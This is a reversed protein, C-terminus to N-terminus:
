ASLVQPRDYHGLPDVHILIEAGPFASAVDAEIEDVIAHARAVSMEPDLWVHFQIFDTVGSSRTRLEHVGGAQPHRAVVALLRRRKDDPWERDMLMDIAARASTVAGWALYGAILLGFLADAGHLGAWVDLALAVIVGLNLLLDSEYHVRDTSIAISQTQRVVHRQYAVLALTLAAAVVSVGVGVEARRPVAPNGFEAVARVAIAVASGLIVLTQMLAAIAEAKGHGFRHDDDAPQAALWVAYLTVLSSLLDLGTDALSGLVAVSGTARAAYAKLFLLLTASAVSAAAARRTLDGRDTM